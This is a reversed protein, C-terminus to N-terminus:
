PWMDADVALARLHLYRRLEQCSIGMARAMTEALSEDGQQDIGMRALNARILEAASPGPPVAAKRMAELAPRLQGELRHVRRSIARM